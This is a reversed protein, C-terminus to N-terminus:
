GDLEWGDRYKRRLLGDAKANNTVRGRDPDYKIKGDVRYAVLGLEMTETMTGSYDFDCTTKLDTKCANTWEKAFNGLPEMLDDESEPADYYTM